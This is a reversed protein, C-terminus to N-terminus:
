RLEGLSKRVRTGRFHAQIKVAASQEDRPGYRNEQQSLVIVLVPRLQTRLKRSHRAVPRQLLGKEISGEFIHHNSNQYGRQLRVNGWCPM